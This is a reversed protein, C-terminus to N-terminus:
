SQFLRGDLTDHLAGFVDLLPSTQAADAPSLGASSSLLADLRGAVDAQLRQAELPGIAGLRVAASLVGRATAHLFAVDAGEVDLAAFTAGFLPALHSPGEYAALAPLDWVHTAALLMARGQARSARNAVHSTLTADCADDLARLAGGEAAARVFPLSARAAQALAEDLFRPVTVGTRLALAAELGSSHAFSGAPFAADALQLLLWPAKM